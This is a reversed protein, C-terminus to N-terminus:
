WVRIKRTKKGVILTYGVGNITETYQRTSYLIGGKFSEAKKFILNSLWNAQKESIFFFKANPFCVNDGNEITPTRGETFALFLDTTTKM